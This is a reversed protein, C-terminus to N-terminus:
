FQSWFWGWIVEVHCGFHVLFVFSKKMSKKVLKTEWFGDFIAGLIARFFWSFEVTPGWFAAPTGSSGGMAGPLGGYSGFQLGIPGLVGLISGWPEWFPAGSGGSRGFNLRPSRWFDSFPGLNCSFAM